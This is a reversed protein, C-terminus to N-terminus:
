CIRLILGTKAVGAWGPANEFASVQFKVFRFFVFNRRFIVFIERFITFNQRLLESRERESGCRSFVSKISKLAFRRAVLIM